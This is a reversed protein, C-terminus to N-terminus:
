ARAQNALLAVSELYAGLDRLTRFACGTPTCVGSRDIKWVSYRPGRRHGCHDWVVLGGYLLRPLRWFRETPRGDRNASTVEWTPKPPPNLIQHARARVDGPLGGRRAAKYLAGLEDTDFLCVEGMFRFGTELDRRWPVGPIKFGLLGTILGDDWLIVTHGDATTGTAARTTTM